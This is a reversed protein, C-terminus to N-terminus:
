RIAPAHVSLHDVDVVLMEDAGVVGQEDEHPACPRERLLDRRDDNLCLRERIPPRPDRHQHDDLLAALNRALFSSLLELAVRVSIVASV